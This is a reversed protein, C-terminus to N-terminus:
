VQKKISEIEIKLDEVTAKENKAKLVEVIEEVLAEQTILNCEMRIEKIIESSNRNFNRGFAHSGRLGFMALMKGINSGGLGQQLPMLAARLDVELNLFPTRGVTSLSNDNNTGNEINNKKLESM